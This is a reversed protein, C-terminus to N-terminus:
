VAEWVKIAKDNKLTRIFDEVKQLEADDLHIKIFKFIKKAQSIRLLSMRSKVEKKTKPDFYSETVQKGCEKCIESLDFQM